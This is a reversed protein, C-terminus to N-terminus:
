AVLERVKLQMWQRGGTLDIPPSEIRFTRSGLLVRMEAQVDTRYRIKITHTIYSESQEAKYYEGSSIARVNAWTRFADEWYEDRHYLPDGLADRNGKFRQFTVRDRLEGADDYAM